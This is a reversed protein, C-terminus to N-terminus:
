VFGSDIAANGVGCRVSFGETAADFEVALAGKSINEFGV